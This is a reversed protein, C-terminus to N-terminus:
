SPRRPSIDRRRDRRRLARPSRARSRRGTRFRISPSARRSRSPSPRKLSLLCREATPRRRVNSCAGGRHARNEGRACSSARSRIRVSPLARNRLGGTRCKQRTLRSPGHSSLAEVVVPDVRAAARPKGSERDRRELTVPVPRRRRRVIRRSLFRELELAERAERPNGRLSALASPIGTSTSHAGCVCASM